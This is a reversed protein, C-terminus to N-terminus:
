EDDSASKGSQANPPFIPIWEEPKLINNIYGDSWPDERGLEVCEKKNSDMALRVWVIRWQQNGLVDTNRMWYEGPGPIASCDTPPLSPQRKEHKSDNM